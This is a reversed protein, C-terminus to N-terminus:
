LFQIIIIGLLVLTATYCKARLDSIRGQIQLFALFWVKLWFVKFHLDCESEEGLVM